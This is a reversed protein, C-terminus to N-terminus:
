RRAAALRRQAPMEALSRLLLRLEDSGALAFTASSAGSGIKITWAGPPAAEFLDEDTADDGAALIFDYDGSGIWRFAAKGKDVNQNRIELVKNGALLSLGLDAAVGGIADTLEALRRKALEAAVGRFHWALSFDKEEVFSGPTRDVWIDLVPRIRDKWESSAAVIMGWDHRPEKLWVGHEAVLSVPLDGLWGFLTAPDRGSLVVVTNRGDAALDALLRLLDDDPRVTTPDERFGMLTGDYDLLVLRRKAQAFAHRMRDAAEDTLSHEDLAVQLMSVEALKGLFDEAWRSVDYRELRARMACGRRRQEEAPMTLAEHLAEVMCDRDNPNVLLAETLEQAAGAMESLVLVGDGASDRAAVYEKAILNMGDRLPTIMAVDAASYMGLLASLPLSRYLYRIPAWGITGQRGNINGVLEDVERKLQRYQEVRDRSPVAVCVFTVRGRWEPYRDLFADFAQLREPIGKTYDLRDISLVIRQDKGQALVRRRERLPGPRTAGSAYRDFDIGMPFADTLVVRGNLRLRGNRDELGTTSRVSRLFHQVYDHTHFGLLSAGLMGEILERRWPLLRFVEWSPFPVHLFFGISADPLEERLMRPLLLLHYDHLWIHDGPEYQELVADRYKRNAREYAQWFRSDFEVYRVFYHFLPWLTRNAFGHYFDAVDDASLFVPACRFQERLEARLEDRESSDMRASVGPWGVWLQEEGGRMSDLGTALGGVSRHYKFGGARREVSVPLRNAVVILKSM